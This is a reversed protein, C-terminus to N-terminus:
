KTSIDKTNSGDRLERFRSVIREHLKKQELTWSPVPRLIVIESLEYTNYGTGKVTVELQQLGKDVDVVKWSTSVSQITDEWTSLGYKNRKFKLGILQEIGAGM